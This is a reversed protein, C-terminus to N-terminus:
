SRYRAGFGTGDHPAIKNNLSSSSVLIKKALTRCSQPLFNTRNWRRTITLETTYQRSIFSVNVKNLPLVHMIGDRNRLPTKAFHCVVDAPEILRFGTWKDIHCLFGGAFGFQTYVRQLTEDTFPSHQRVLLYTMKSERDQLKFHFIYQISGVRSHSGGNGRFLVNSDRPLSEVSAFVVGQISLKSLEQVERPVLARNSTYTTTRFKRDLAQLLLRYVESSLTLSSPPQTRPHHSEDALRTGRHDENAVAEFAFRLPQVEEPLDQCDLLAQLNSSRCVSTM